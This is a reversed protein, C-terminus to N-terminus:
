STNQNKKDGIDCNQSTYSYSSFCHSFIIDIGRFRASQQFQGAGTVPGREVLEEILITRQHNTGRLTPKTRPNAGAYIGGVNDLFGMQVRELSQPIKKM